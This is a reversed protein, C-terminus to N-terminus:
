ESSLYPIEARVRMPDQRLLQAESVLRGLSVTQLEQILMEQIRGWVAHASCIHDLPCEHPRLLCMNLCIPGEVAEVIQLLSIEDSPQALALGGAPGPYTRVLSAKVLDATIKHLFAKPVSAKKSVQRSPMCVGQTNLGLEIMIRVAYDTRRSIQFM